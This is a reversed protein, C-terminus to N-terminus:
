FGKQERIRKKEIKMQTPKKDFNHMTSTTCLNKQKIKKPPFKSKKLKM